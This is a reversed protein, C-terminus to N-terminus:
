VKTSRLVMFKRDSAIVDCNGFLRKLKAPYDLHRNGVVRLEGGSRLADRSEVFMQWATADSIAHDAHFPPNTLVLDFGVAAPRGNALDFLGNGVVFYAKREAGLNARFTAQASAVARYSEDVFTIESKPSVIAARVGLIGNGCGLDAIRQPGDRHPLNELLLRTGGDLRDAAFVGAHSTVVEHGPTVTYTKPWPNLPRQLNPDPECFICRAKKEALSTRTPGVIKAFLDLTSMHIHRTMAAAVVRTKDHLHPAIRQLQDELLALSKPVKMVLLDIRAPLPDFSTLLRVGGLDIHNRRCNERAAAHAVYSDSLTSLRRHGLATSLAGWNDNVVLVEGMADDYGELNRLILEDAADWARLMENARRPYRELKFEGPTRVSASAVSTIM